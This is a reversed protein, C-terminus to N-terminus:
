TTHNIRRAKEISVVGRNFLRLASGDYEAMAIRLVSAGWISAPKLLRLCASTCFCSSAVIFIFVL